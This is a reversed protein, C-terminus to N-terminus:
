KPSIKPLQLIKPTTKRAILPEIKPPLVSREYQPSRKLRGTMQAPNPLNVSLSSEAIEKPVLVDFTFSSQNETNSLEITYNIGEEVETWEEEESLTINFSSQALITEDETELWVSGRLTLTETPPLILTEQFTFPLISDLVPLWPKPEDLIIEPSDVSQLRYRLRASQTPITENAIADVRGVLRLFYDSHDDFEDQELTITVFPVVPVIPEPAPLIPEATPLLLSAPVSVSFAIRHSDKSDVTEEAEVQCVVSWDGAPLFRSPFVMMLGEPNTQRTQDLCVKPHPSDAGYTMRVTVTGNPYPTRAVMRYTGETLADLVADISHWQRDGEKQILFEWNQM